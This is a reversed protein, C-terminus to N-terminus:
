PRRPKVVDDLKTRTWTQSKCFLGGLVCGQLDLTNPGTVTLSGSYTKGDEANYVQGDWKDATAGPTMDIIIQVGILPRGALAANPNNVDTQPRGTDPDIPTKLAVIAGCLAAGCRAIAVKAEGDKTLWVGIPPDAALAPMAAALALCTAIVAGTLVKRM